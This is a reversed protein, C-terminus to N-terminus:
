YPAPNPGRRWLEFLQRCEDHLVHPHIRVPSRGRRYLTEISVPLENFHADKADAISAGYVVADLGAWHIAAACMPCPECTSAIIHGALHIRGLKACAGRIANIEAHATSDCSSRVTNHAAIVVRGNATAIVAGFPSDGVAIGRRGVDIAQKMLENHDAMLVSDGWVAMRSNAMKRAREEGRRLGAQPLLWRGAPRPERRGALVRAALLSHGRRRITVIPEFGAPERGKIPGGATPGRPHTMPDAPEPREALPGRPTYHERSKCRPLDYSLLGM